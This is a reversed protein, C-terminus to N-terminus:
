VLFCAFVLVSVPFASLFMRNFASRLVCNMILIVEVHKPVLTVDNPLRVRLTVLWVNHKLYKSGYIDSKRDKLNRFERFIAIRHRFKMFQKIIQIKNYIKLTDRPLYVLYLCICLILLMIFLHFSLRRRYVEIYYTM